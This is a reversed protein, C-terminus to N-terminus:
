LYTRKLVEIVDKQQLAVSGWYGPSPLKTSYMYYGCDQENKGKIDIILKKLYKTNLMLMNFGSDFESKTLGRKTCYCSFTIRHFSMVQMRVM